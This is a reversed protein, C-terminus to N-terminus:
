LKYFHHTQNVSSLASVNKHFNKYFIFVVKKVQM